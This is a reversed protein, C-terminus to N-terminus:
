KQNDEKRQEKPMSGEGMTSTGSKKDVPNKKIIQRLMNRMEKKEEDTVNGEILELMFLWMRATIINENFLAEQEVGWQSRRHWNGIAIAVPVYAVVFIAAFIWLNSFVSSLIPVRDILLAYQITVFNAFTM